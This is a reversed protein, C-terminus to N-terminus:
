SAFIINVDRNVWFLAVLVIELEVNHESLRKISKKNARYQKALSKCFGM